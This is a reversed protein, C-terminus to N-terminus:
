TNKRKPINSRLKLLAGSDPPTTVKPAGKRNIAIKKNTGTKMSFKLVNCQVKKNHGVKNINMIKKVHKM